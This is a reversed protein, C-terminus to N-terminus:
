KQQKRALEVLHDTDIHLDVGEPMRELYGEQSLEELRDITEPALPKCGGWWSENSM